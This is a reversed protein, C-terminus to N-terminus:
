YGRTCERFMKCAFRGPNVFQGKYGCYQTEPPAGDPGYALCDKCRKQEGRAEMAAKWRDYYPGQKASLQRVVRGVKGIRVTSLHAEVEETPFYIDYRCNPCVFYVREEM